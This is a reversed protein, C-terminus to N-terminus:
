FDMLIEAKCITLVNAEFIVRNISEIDLSLFLPGIRASRSWTRRIGEVFIRFTM